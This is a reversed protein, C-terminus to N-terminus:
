IQVSLGDVMTSHIALLGNLKESSPSPNTLITYFVDIMKNQDLCNVVNLVVVNEVKVRNIESILKVFTEMQSKDHKAKKMFEEASTGLM